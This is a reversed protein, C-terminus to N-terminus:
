FSIMEVVATVERLERVVAATAYEDTASRVQVIEGLSLATVRHDTLVIHGNHDPHRASLFMRVLPLTRRPRRYARMQAQTLRGLIFLSGALPQEPSRPLSPPLQSGSM